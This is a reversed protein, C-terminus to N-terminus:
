KKKRMTDTLPKSLKALSDMQAKQKARFKESREKMEAKFQEKNLIDVVNIDFVLISNAPIEPRERTGYALSSPIYFKAQAGKKLLGLGDNWGAIVKQGMSPDNTMNVFIPEVHKKSSDTNSDFMKGDMTRGTYNVSVVHATDINEGTGQNIIEVYTGLPAKEAKIHNKEFYDQLTKDDRAIQKTEKEKTLKEAVAMAATRAKDADAQSTYSNLIKFTQIIYEGKRMFPAGQGKKMISDTLSKVVISDGVHVTSFIEKYIPPFKSTDYPAFQAMGADATSFLLSDKYKVVMSIEMTNGKTILKGGKAPIIKYENGAEKTRKFEDNNCASLFVLSFLFLYSAKKM